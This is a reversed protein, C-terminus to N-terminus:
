RQNMKERIASVAEDPAPIGLSVVSDDLMIIPLAIPGFSRLLQDIQPYDGVHVDNMVNLVKVRCSTEKEITEELSQIEEESQGIPGCCTSQPGCPFTVPIVFIKVTSSNDTM